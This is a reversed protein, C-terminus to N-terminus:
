KRRSHHSDRKVGSKRSEGRKNIAEARSFRYRERIRANNDACNWAHRIIWSGSFDFHKRIGWKKEGAFQGHRSMEFIRRRMRKRWTKRQVFLLNLYFKFIQKRIIVITKPISNSHLQKEYVSCSYSFLLILLKKPIKSFFKLYRLYRLFSSTWLTCELSSSLYYILFSNRHLCKSPCKVYCM